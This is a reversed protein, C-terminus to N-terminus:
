LGESAASEVLDVDIEGAGMMGMMEYCLAAITLVGRPVGGTLEYIREVAPAPFPNPIQAFNCRYALM